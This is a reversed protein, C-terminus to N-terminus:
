SLQTWEMGSVSADGGGASREIGNWRRDTMEPFDQM